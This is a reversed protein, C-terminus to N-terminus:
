YGAGLIEDYLEVYQKVTDEFHFKRIPTNEWKGAYAIELADKLGKGDQTKMSIYQGSVVEKLAGQGSSILPIGMAISEAAAFCFGESYSPIMVCSSTLLAQQLEDYNLNHLLTLRDEPINQMEGKITRLFGKPRTPIIMKLHADPHQKLFAPAAELILDLGKSIGLRGFYTFTFKLPPSYQFFQFDKYNLGNYIRTIKDKKIGAQRLSEATYDSVAIFRHFGLRLIFWEYTYYLRKSITGAFPLRFWLKGWAEHFTILVKKGYIWGALRAPFAANYSTTHIIDCNKAERLMGFIGFFTFVFRSSINLRKVEVGNIIERKPLEKSFRTTIVSVSHGEEVLKEALSKFLKEIGGINPYYLELIFLIKM